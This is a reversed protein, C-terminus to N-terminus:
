ILLLEAIDIWFFDSILVRLVVLFAL